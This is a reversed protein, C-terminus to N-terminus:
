FAKLDLKFFCFFNYIISIQFSFFESIVVQIYRFDFFIFFLIVFRWYIINIIRKNALKNKAKM